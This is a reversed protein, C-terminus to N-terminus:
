PKVLTIKTGTSDGDPDHNDASTYAGVASAINTVTFVISLKGKALKRGIRCLGSTNTTCTATAGNPWKGTVIAAAVLAHTQDHVLIRVQARWGSSLLSSTDDLDGVHV